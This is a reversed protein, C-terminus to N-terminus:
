FVCCITWKKDVQMEPIITKLLAVLRGWLCVKGRNEAQVEFLASKGSIRLQCDGDEEARTLHLL